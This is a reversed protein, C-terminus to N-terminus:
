GRRRLCADVLLRGLTRAALLADAALPWGGERTPSPAQARPPEVAAQRPRPPAEVLPTPLAPVPMGPQRRAALVYASGGLLGAALAALAVSLWPNGDGVDGVFGTAPAVSPGVTQDSVLLLDAPKGGSGVVIATSASGAVLPVGQESVLAAGAGSPRTIALDHRGPPVSAYPTAQDPRIRSLPQGDVRMEAQDLEAAANITRMRAKGAVANGDKYVRLGVKNGEPVAIVTYRGRGIEINATAAPKAQGEVKLEVRAPGPHCDHYASPHGYSSHIRPPHGHVILTAPAAMPVAHLFRARTLVKGQQQEHAQAAPPAAAM